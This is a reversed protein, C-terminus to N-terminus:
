RGMSSAGERRKRKKQIYMLIAAATMLLVGGATYMQTGEGGTAPLTVQPVDDKPATNKIIIEGEVIGNNNEYAVTYNTPIGTETVYYSYYVTKGDATGTKPLGTIWKRWQDSYFITYTGYVTDKPWGQTDSDDPPSTPEPTPEDVSLVNLKWGDSNADYLEIDVQTNKEVVVDFSYYATWHGTEDIPDDATIEEGNVKPTKGKHWEYWCYSLQYHVITGIPYNQVITKNFANSGWADTNATLTVTGNGTGSAGGGSPESIDAVQHLDFTISGDSKTFEVENNERDFKYWKKQVKVKTLSSENEVYMLDGMSYEKGAFDSPKCYTEGNPDRILFYVADGTATYDKPATKEVLKYATNTKLNTLSIKGEEDTVLAVVNGTNDLVNTKVYGSETYEYLEFEAGPLKVGYDGKEVKYLELGSNVEAGASSSVLNFEFTTQSNGGQQAVGKLEAKNWIKVKQQNAYDIKRANVSYSYEVILPMDDPLTMTMIYDKIVGGSSEPHTVDSLTYSYESASLESGKEGNPLMKYVKLSQADMYISYQAQSVDTSVWISSTDILTMTDAGPVLDRAAPNIQLEYKVANGGDVQNGIKNLEPVHEDKTIHQTQTSEDLETGNNKVVVTNSLDLQYKDGGKDIWEANEDIGAYLEVVFGNEEGALQQALNEPITFTLTGTKPVDAHIKYGNFVWYDESQGVKLDKWVAAEQIKKCNLNLKAGQLILGKPMREEVTVPGVGYDDPLNVYFKWKVQGNALGKVDHSTEKKNFDAADHKIVIPRVRAFPTSTQSTNGVELKGENYFYIEADPDKILATSTFEFEIKTGPAVAENFTVEFGIADSAYSGLGYNWKVAGYTLGHAEAMAAIASEVARQQVETFKQEGNWTKLSDTFKWGAALGRSADISIKWPIEVTNDDPSKKVTGAEKTLPSYADGIWITSGTEVDKGPDPDPNELKVDNSVHGSGLGQYSPTVYTIEYTDNTEGFTYPLTIKVKEQTGRKTMWIETGAPLENNPFGIGTISDTLVWDKLNHRGENVVITWTISDGDASVSGSKRAYNQNFRVDILKEGELPEGEVTTSSATAKNYVVKEGTPAGDPLKGKYTITYCDGAGMKPLTVNFGTKDSEVTVQPTIVEEGRKITIGAPDDIIIDKMLDELQVEAGTGHESSVKVTFDVTGDSNNPNGHSKEVTLDNAHPDPPTPQEIPIEIHLGETFSIDIKDGTQEFANVKSEFIIHGDIANGDMNKDIVDDDFTITITGDTAIVYSGLVEGKKNKVPGSESNITTVNPIKYVLPNKTHDLKNGAITYSLEIQLSDELGVKEGSVYEHWQWENKPMILISADTLYDGLNNTGTGTERPEVENLAMFMVPYDGERVEAYATLASIDVVPYPQEVPAYCDCTHQHGESEEITCILNLATKYCNEGHAHREDVSLECILTRTEEYCGAEVSHRHGESEELGCILEGREIDFSPAALTPEVTCNATPVPTATPEPTPAESAVLTPESSVTPTAEVTATPEITPEESAAFTPEATATVTPEVTATPVITPEESAVLTPEPTATATAEVSITPTLEVTASPSPEVTPTATPEATATATPEVTATPKVSATATPEVTATPKVTASPSPEVTGTATPEASATATPKVSATATPKVTASPSPEVTGTATPEVSATATSKVTATPKVTASPSPEVTATATPEVTATATPKVSATATPEVTATPKVTASPSPEVTATATPKVSATATPKASATATPKATAPMTPKMTATPKITTTATPKVTATATPEATATATPKVSATATPKVTATATPKVTATASPKITATATPETTATVTPAITPEEVAVKTPEETPKVFDPNEPMVGYGLIRSNDMSYRKTAVRSGSNGEITDINGDSVESVIGVHNSPGTGDETFFVVDGPKPDAESRPVFLGRFKLDAVWRACSAERPFATEPVNAYNLCFSVFMACWDEYELGYWDGYRTYGKIKGEANVQYNRTSERYGIQTEAIAILDMAWEGTLKAGSVSRKWVRASEVDASPNSYCIRGHTHEPIECILTEAYCTETHVHETGPAPTSVPTVTTMVTYCADTHAHAPIAEEVVQGEEYPCTQEKTVEYCADAHAHAPVADEIVQGESYPCTQTKTVTYCSDTHAHAGEGQKKGCVYKERTEYCADGHVHGEEGNSCNLVRERQICADSHVHGESVEQGCSLKREEAYCAATHAHTVAPKGVTEPLGCVLTKKEAFCADGHTHIVAPRGVGEEQGCILVRVESVAPTAAAAVAWECAPMMAYCEETHQHEELGCYVADELTIAPLMMAYTTVFVVFAAMASVIRKWTKKRHIHKRYEAAREMVPKKM